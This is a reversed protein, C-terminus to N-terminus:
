LIRELASRIRESLEAVPRNGRETDVFVHTFSGQALAGTDQQERASGDADFAALRYRVSSTGISAVRLGVQVDNPFAIPEFYDCQSAVCFGVVGGAQLDIADHALLFRNIATDFFAYYNVNNVHGFVDNDAWRTTIVHRWPFEPLKSRVRHSLMRKATQM